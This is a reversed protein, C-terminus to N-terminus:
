RQESNYKPRTALVKKTEATADAEGGPGTTIYVLRLKQPGLSQAETEGRKKGPDTGPMQTGLTGM